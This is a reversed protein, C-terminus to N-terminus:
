NCYRPDTTDTVAPDCMKINGSSSITIRLCRMPSGATVHECVGGTPNSIDIQTMNTVGAPTTLRGFGNFYVTTGGTASFAANPTGESGAKKQITQPATSAATVNSSQAVDCKGAPDSLSVVWNTGTASLACASDMSSTLQFRVVTNRRLAESRALQLGAITTDAATRIQSNGMWRTFNSVAAAMLIAFIVLGVGLEVLTFGRQKM